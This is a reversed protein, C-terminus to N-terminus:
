GAAEARRIMSKTRAEEVIKQQEAEKLLIDKIAGIMSYQLPKEDKTRANQPEHM